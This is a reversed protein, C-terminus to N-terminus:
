HKRSMVTTVKVREALWALRPVRLQSLTSPAAAAAARLMPVVTLADPCHRLLSYIVDLKTHWMAAFHFPFLGQEGGVVPLTHGQRELILKIAELSCITQGL